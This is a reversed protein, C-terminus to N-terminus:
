IAHSDGKGFAATNCKGPSDPSGLLAVAELGAYKNPAENTKAQELPIPPFYYTLGKIGGFLTYLEQKVGATFTVRKCIHTKIENEFDVYKVCSKEDRKPALFAGRQHTIRAFPQYRLEEGKKYFYTYDQHSVLKLYRAKDLGKLDFVFLYGNGCDGTEQRPLKEAEEIPLFKFQSCAFHLAVMIDSTIDLFSAVFPINGQVAKIDPSYHTMLAELKEVNWSWWSNEPINLLVELMYDAPTEGKVPYYPTGIGFSELAATFWERNREESHYFNCNRRSQPLCANEKNDNYEGRFYLGKESYEGAFRIMEKLTTIPIEEMNLVGAAKRAAMINEAGM